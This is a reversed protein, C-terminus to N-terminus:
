PGGLFAKVEGAAEPDAPGLDLYRRYHEAAASRDGQERDVDGALRHAEALDPALALARTVEEAAAAWRGHRVARAAATLAARGLVVSRAAALDALPDPALVGQAGTRTPEGLLEHRLDFARLPGAAGPGEGVWLTLGTADIIAVHAQALDDIANGNGAPLRLEGKGRRDRLVALAAPADAFLGRGLLEELRAQRAGGPRTRRARDNDADRAFEAAALVDGIVAAKKPRAVVVKGPTREVVAWVGGKGDAVLFSASGLPHAAQLIAVAEDLDHARELVDRAVEAVPPAAADPRVDETIAPDVCVVVGEANVGTVAGVEGAWGVRAFALAGGAPRVFAVVPPGPQPGVSLGFSRGIVVRPMPAAVGVAFALGTALGGIPALSGPVHGVDLAAERWVLQQYSPPAGLGAARWGAALGALEARRPGPIGGAVLRYRWRLGLGHFLGTLGDPPEDGAIAADLAAGGDGIARGFLRAEAVGMAYPEGALRLVWVDGVRELSSGGLALRTGDVALADSPGTGSPTSAGTARLFVVYAVITAVLLLLAVAAVRRLLRGPRPPRKAGLFIDQV